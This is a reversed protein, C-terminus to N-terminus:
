EGKKRRTRSGGFAGFGGFADGFIDGFSSFYIM